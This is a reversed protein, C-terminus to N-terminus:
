RFRNVSEVAMIQIVHKITLQVLFPVFLHITFPDEELLAGTESCSFTLIFNLSRKKTTRRDM